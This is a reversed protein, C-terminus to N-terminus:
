HLFIHVLVELKRLPLFTSLFIYIYLIDINIMPNNNIRTESIFILSPLSSFEQLFDLLEDFYAQLSCINLHLIFHSNTRNFCFRNNEFDYIKCPCIDAKLSQFLRHPLNNEDTITREPEYNESTAERCSFDCYSSAAM